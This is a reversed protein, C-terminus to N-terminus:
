VEEMSLIDEKAIAVVNFRDRYGYLINGSWFYRDFCVERQTDICRYKDLFRRERVVLKLM